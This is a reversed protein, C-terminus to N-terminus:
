LLHINRSGTETEICNFKEAGPSCSQSTKYCLMILVINDTSGRAQDSVPSRKIVEREERAGTKSRQRM